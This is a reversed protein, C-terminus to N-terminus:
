LGSRSGDGGHDAKGPDREDTWDGAGAGAGGAGGAFHVPLYFNGEM